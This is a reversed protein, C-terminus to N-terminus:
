SYAPDGGKGYFSVEIKFTCSSCNKFIRVKGIRTLILDPDNNTIGRDVLVFTFTNLDLENDWKGIGTFAAYSITESETASSSDFIVQDIRGNQNKTFKKFEGYMTGTGLLDFFHYEIYENTGHIQYEWRGALDTLEYQLSITSADIQSYVIQSIM